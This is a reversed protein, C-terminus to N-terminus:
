SGTECLGLLFQRLVAIFADPKEIPPLHGADPIVEFRAGPIQKAMKAAGDPPTIRDEGGAVVLTPVTISDLIEVASSRVAMGRLAAAIGEPSNQTMRRRWDERVSPSTASAWLKEMMPDVVASSGSTLAARASKERGEAAEPSDPEARTDILGLARARTRHRRYLEFAVYGGMSLGVVTMARSEHLADLLAVLDDALTPMTADDSPPTEGHGRLDPAILRWRDRLGAITPRWMDASLPFGHVLLVPDGNEPGEVVCRMRMGRVNVIM